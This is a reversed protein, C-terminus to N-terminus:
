AAAAADDPDWDNALLDASFVVIGRKQLTLRPTAKTM